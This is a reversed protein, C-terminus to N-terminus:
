VRQLVEVAGAGLRVPAGVVIRAAPSRLDDTEGALTAAALFSAATEFSARLLPSAGSAAGGRTCPRVGGQHTMHDGILGLHRGDVGIGYAGFLSAAETVLTARAAEVGLASLAAAVDNTRVRSAASEPAGSVLVAEMAGHLNVGEVQVVPGPAGRPTAVTARGVGSVARLTTAAAAAEALGLALLRPAGPPLLLRVALTRAKADVSAVAPPGTGAAPKPTPATPAPADDNDDDSDSDDSSSGGGGGDAAAAAADDADPKTHAAGADDRIRGGRWALRGEENDADLEADDDGGDKAGSSPRHRRPPADDDDDDDSGGGGRGGRGEDNPLPAAVIDGAGGAAARRLAAAAGARLAPVFGTHFAAEAEAFDVAPPPAVTLTFTYARSYSAGDGGGDGREGGWAAPAEEVALGDLAEALCVRRLASAISAAAAVGADGGPLPVDMSPTAGGRGGAMFLERLRPVGMTVNADGRGASHFTNLTMQTSPEGISQAALVGVAEGPALAAALVRALAVDSLTPSPGADKGHEARWWSALAADAARVADPASAAYAALSAAFAESPPPPGPTPDPPRAASAGRAAADAAAAAAADAAVRTADRAGADVLAVGGALRQAAAVPNSAVLGFDSTLSRAAVDGGDGGAVFQVVSGDATDRASGDYAVAVPELCKALCRQLYGSRATKVTTDVLGERGAMCHFYYEQPRLGTLFRDGVFGSSRAGGDYPAFCPLTAGSPGRPVRRGELEQQGLLCAIQSHNVMSGKAGSVTMLALGNDPFPVSAGRPLAAKIVASALAHMAPTVAADHGVGAAGGTARYSTALGDRVSAAAAAAAAAAAPGAAPPPGSVVSDAPPPPKGEVFAASAAVAAAEARTLLAAREADAGPTLTMDALACTFGRAELWATGLRSLGALLDDAALPGYLEHVAHVIGGRGYAAKDLTGTLLHGDLFLVRGEGSEPGGPWADAAIKAGYELTIAPRGAVVAALVATVVQKGTWLPTPKLLAPLPLALHPLPAADAHRPAVAGWVLQAAQARTLLTGRAALSTGAVVHDQILGRLPGGATPSIFANPAAVLERAEAAAPVSQPLHLNIEDGDFDANFAACNAYHLRITREGHLVRAAHAVMGPRHLTPQRNTILVDGDVVHRHVVRGRGDDGPSSTLLSRALADRKAPPLGALSVVRGSGDEVALAGPHTRAGARVAARLRQANSPTVHEPVSLRVAFYPPLGVERPLLRPDPSIVSRAAYNVRKGMMHKRFLGEKKELAQRVGLSGPRADPTSSDILSNTAAQLSLWAALGAGVDPPAAGDGAAATVDSSATVIAALAVNHPHEFTADGLKSPPRLRNPPVAVATVFFADGARRWGDGTLRRGYLERLLHANAAWCRRMIERAEAPTVYRLGAAAAGRTPITATADASAAAAAAAAEFAVAESTSVTTNGGSESGRFVPAIPTGRADNAAARAADLRKVFLKSAGERTVRPCTAGCNACVSAPMRKFLATVAAAAESITLATPPARVSAPPVPPLDPTAARPAAGRKGGGDEGGEDSEVGEDGGDVADAAAKKVGAPAAGSRAVAASDVARGARLLALAHAVADVDAVAAKFRFCHLCTAKILKYLTRSPPTPHSHTANNEQRDVVVCLVCEGLCWRITCRCRWTSTALTAPARPRPSAAPPAATHHTHLSSFVPAGRMHRKM